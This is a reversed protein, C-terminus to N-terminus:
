VKHIVTLTMKEKKKKVEEVNRGSSPVTCAYFELNWARMEM